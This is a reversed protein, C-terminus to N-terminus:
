VGRLIKIIAQKGTRHDGLHEGDLFVQPISRFGKGLLFERARPNERINFERYKIENKDLFTKLIDCNPCDTGSYVTFVM